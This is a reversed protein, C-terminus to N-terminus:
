MAFRIGQALLLATGWNVNVTQRRMYFKWADSGSERGGGTDKEGGFAGGIEAGSTGTNINAIGCDSGLASLFLETEQLRNSFLSSSLGQPVDNQMAIAEDISRFKMIYLIPAFTEEQVVQFRNQSEALCPRVYAGGPYEEGLLPEGGYLVRGGEDQLRRIAGQMVSVAHADVLPGMLTHPSLPNGIRVQWYVQLLSELFRDYVAEHVFLRRTSTCRQGSTGVAGFLTAQLALSLDAHESVILANNGGLELLTRGLREGVVCGIHRGMRTSGTASILPVRRDTLLREGIEGGSGVLLSAVAGPFKHAALVHQVIKTVAVATLPTKSSPKWVTVNGAVAAVAFNWAWVAVPFNFSTILGVIGLPHWQEYMRNGPRESHMTKGYLQRSLGLAFDCIDIMEQIEGDGEAKIKGMELSVLTGLADKHRRLEDGLARIMEGRRPAPVNRWLLFAERAEALVAAYEESGAKRVRGLPRGDIPSVSSISDGGALWRGCCAGDNEEKLGLERFVADQVPKLDIKEMMREM